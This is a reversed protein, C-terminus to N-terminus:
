SAIGGLQLKVQESQHEGPPYCTWGTVRATASFGPQGGAKAPHLPSTALFQVWDGLNLQSLPPGQGPALTLLPTTQSATRKPLMGDAYANIQAQTTIGVGTYSISDELLPYGANLDTTDRGHPLQSQWQAASGNPPATAVLNNASAQGSRHFAYNAVNGPFQLTAVPNAQPQGLYPYGLQVAITPAGAVLTATMGWEYTYTAALDSWADYVKKLDTAQYSANIALGATTTPVQLNAVSGFTKGTAFTLLARFVNFVDQSSYNLVQDIQRHQFLSEMTSAQIPLTGDLISQHQWDWVIGCWIPQNDQSVWLVTRRPELATVNVANATPGQLLSLSGTLTGIGNIQRSFSQVTLPLNDQTVTGTILDTTWYRYTSM